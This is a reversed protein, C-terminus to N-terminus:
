YAFIIDGRLKGFQEKTLDEKSLMLFVKDM